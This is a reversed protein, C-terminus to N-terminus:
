DLSCGAGARRLLPAPLLVSAAVCHTIEQQKVLCNCDSYNAIIDSSHLAAPNCCVACVGIALNQQYNDASVYAQCSLPPLAVIDQPPSILPLSNHLFLTTVLSPLCALSDVLACTVPQHVYWDQGSSGQMSSALAFPAPSAAPANLEACCWSLTAQGKHLAAWFGSALLGHLGAPKGTWACSLFWM